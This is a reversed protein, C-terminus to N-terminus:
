GRRRSRSRSGPARPRRTTAPGARARGAPPPAAARRPPAAATLIAGSPSRLWGPAVTPGGPAARPSGPARRSCTELVRSARFVSVVAGRERARGPAREAGARAPSQGSRAVTASPPPPRTAASGGGRRADSLSRRCCRHTAGRPRGREPLSVAPTSRSWPPTTQRSGGVCEGWGGCRECLTAKAERHAGGPGKIDASFAAPTNMARLARCEAFVTTLHISPKPSNAKCVSSSARAHYHYTFSGLLRQGMGTANGPSTSV